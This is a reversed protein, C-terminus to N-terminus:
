LGMGKTTTTTSTSGDVDVDVAVVVAVAAVGTVLAAGQFIRLARARRASRAPVDVTLPAEPEARRRGYVWAAVALGIVLAYLPLLQLLTGHLAVVSHSCLTWLAFAICAGDCLRDSALATAATRAVAIDSM